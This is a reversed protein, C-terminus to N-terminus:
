EADDQAAFYDVRGVLLAAGPTNMTMLVDGDQWADRVYTFAQEYAPEPTRFAVRLDLWTGHAQLLVLAAVALWGSVRLMRYGAGRERRETLLRLAMEWGMAAVLYFWPLMMVLYRPNHRWPELLTIMEVVPVVSIIWLYFAQYSRRPRGVGHACRHFWLVLLAVGGWVAVVSLWIHHPVGFARALFRVANGGDLVLGAQYTVTNLLERTLDAAEMNDLPAAGLPQGLRKVLIALVLVVGLALVEAVGSLRLFWPRVEPARTLWGVAIAGIVLPPVLILAGFHALLLALLVLLALWRLRGNGAGWSGQYVLVALGVALLQALSYMRARGDWVVAQPAFALLGAAILGVRTSFWCKGVRYVLWVSVLGILVSPLRASLFLANDSYNELWRALGVWPVDLYSFLLGHEYFLGSPLMPM